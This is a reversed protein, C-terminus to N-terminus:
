AKLQNFKSIPFTATALLLEVCEIFPIRYWWCASSVCARTCFIIRGQTHCSKFVSRDGRCYFEFLPLRRRTHANLWKAISCTDSWKRICLRIMFSWERFSKLLGPSQMTKRGAATRYKREVQRRAFLAQFCLVIEASAHIHESNYKDNINM